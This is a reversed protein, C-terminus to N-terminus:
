IDSTGSGARHELREGRVERKTRGKQPSRVRPDLCARLIVRYAPRYARAYAPSHHFAPFGLGEAQAAMRELEAVQRPLNTRCWRVAASLRRKMREPNGKVWRASEVMAEALWEANRMKRRAGQVMCQAAVLPRLNVRVLRNDPDIPEIADEGAGNQMRCDANQLRCETALARRAVAASAIIHGPGFVGQHILKYIDQAKLLPYRQCHWALIASLSSLSSHDPALDWPRSQHIV